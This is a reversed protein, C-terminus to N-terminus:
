DKSAPRANKEAIGSSTTRRQLEAMVDAVSVGRIHLVVLLHYLLDASEDRLGDTDRNIAAIVTEIAEEGFKEASKEIGMGVLKATWSAVDGSSARDAIISELELLSFSKM